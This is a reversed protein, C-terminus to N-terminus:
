NTTTTTSTRRCRSRVEKCPFTSMLPRAFKDAASPSGARGDMTLSPNGAVLCRDGVVERAIRILMRLSATM